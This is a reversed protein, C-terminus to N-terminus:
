LDGEQSLKNDVCDRLVLRIRKLLAYTGQLSRGFQRAISEVPPTPQDYRMAILRRSETPLQELCTRLVSHQSEKRQLDQQDIRAAAQSLQDLLEDDILLLHKNKRVHALIRRRAIERAWPLFGSEDRLQSFSTAIALSSEQFIDDADAHNRVAALIYAMLASRHELLLRTITAADSIAGNHPLASSKTEVPNKESM